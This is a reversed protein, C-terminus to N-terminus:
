TRVTWDDRARGKDAATKLARELARFACITVREADTPRRGEDKAANVLATREMGLADVLEYVNIDALKLMSLGGPPEAADLGAGVVRMEGCDRSRLYGHLEQGSAIQEGPSLWARGIFKADLKASVEV